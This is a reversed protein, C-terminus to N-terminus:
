GIPFERIQIIIPVIVKGEPKTTESLGRTLGRANDSVVFGEPM